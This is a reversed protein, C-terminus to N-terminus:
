CSSVFTNESDNAHVSIRADILVARFTERTASLWEVSHNEGDQTYAIHRHNLAQFLAYPVSDPPISLFRGAFGKFDRSTVNFIVELSSDLWCSNNKWAYSPHGM